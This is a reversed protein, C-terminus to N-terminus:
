LPIRGYRLISRELEKRDKVIDTRSLKAPYIEYAHKYKDPTVKKMIVNAGFNFPNEHQGGPTEAESLVSLSTTIPLNAKPLLLRTIAVARKALEPEGSKEGKLPTKPNSIFPGIGAMDCGIKKLLLIDEAVTYLSQGPLGTMFGGGTEYGLEKLIKLCEIREEFTGCPHLGAYLKADATEHKLLYRDAGKERFYKYEKYSREGISLTVATEFPAEINKIDEILRGMREKTFYDDEGSQLVITKYGAQIALKATNVIEEHGMRFRQLEKNGRNLGCYTCQRRCVNSFEIIARLNVTNGVNSRRVKDAAEYVASFDDQALLEAIKEKNLQTFDYNGAMISVM